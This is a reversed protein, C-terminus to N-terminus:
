RGFTEPFAHIAPQDITKVIAGMAAAAGLELLQRRSIQNNKM